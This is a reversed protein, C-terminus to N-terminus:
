GHMIESLAVKKLLAAPLLVICSQLESVDPESADVLTDATLVSSSPVATPPISPVM